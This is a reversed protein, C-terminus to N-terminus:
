NFNHYDFIRVNTGTSDSMVVVLNRCPTIAIQKPSIIGCVTNSRLSITGIWNGDMNLVKIFGNVSDSIYSNNSMTDVCFHNSQPYHSDFNPLFRLKEGQVSYYLLSTPSCLIVLIDSLIDLNVPFAVISLYFHGLNKLEPSYVCIRRRYADIIYVLGDEDCVIGRPLSSDISSISTVMYDTFQTIGQTFQNLIYLSYRDVTMSIQCPSDVVNRGFSTVYYGQLSFVNIVPKNSSLISSNETVFIYGKIPDICLAAPNNIYVEGASSQKSLTLIPKKSLFFQNDPSYCDNDSEYRPRKCDM